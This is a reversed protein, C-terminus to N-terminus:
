MQLSINSASPRAQTKLGQPTYIIRSERAKELHDRPTYFRDGVQIFRRVDTGGDDTVSTLIISGGQTAVFLAGEHIRYVIGIQFPHFTGDKTTSSCKKVRVCMDNVFTIAGSYPDDFADIFREIHM